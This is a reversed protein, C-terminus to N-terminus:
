PVRVLRATDYGVAGVQQVMLDYEALTLTPTLSM